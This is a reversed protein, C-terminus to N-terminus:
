SSIFPCSLMVCIHPSRGTTLPGRLPTGFRDPTLPQSRLGSLACGDIFPPGSM